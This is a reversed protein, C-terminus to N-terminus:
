RVLTAGDCVNGRKGAPRRSVWQTLVPKRWWWRRRQRRRTVMWPPGTTGSGESSLGRGLGVPPGAASGAASGVPPGVALVSDSLTSVLTTIVTRAQISGSTSSPPCSGRDPYTSVKQSPTSPGVAVQSSLRKAPPRWCCGSPKARSRQAVAAAIPKLKRDPRDDANLLANCRQTMNPRAWWSGSPPRATRRRMGSTAWRWRRRM